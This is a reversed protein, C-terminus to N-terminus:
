KNKKPFDYFDLAAQGVELDSWDQVPALLSIVACTPLEGLSDDGALRAAFSSIGPNHGFLMLHSAQGGLSRVVELLEDASALYAADARVIRASPYDLAKAFAKATSMARAAPSSVLLTPILRAERLRAAMEPADREGRKSLPRDFDDLSADGWDSKAHRVLTLRKRRRAKV